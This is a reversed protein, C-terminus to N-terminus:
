FSNDSASSLMLQLCSALWRQLTVRLNLSSPTRSARSLLVIVALLSGNLPFMWTLHMSIDTPSWNSNIVHHIVFVYISYLLWAKWSVVCIIICERFPALPEDRRIVLLDDQAITAVQLDRKIDRINTLKKSLRTGQLLNAHTRRLHPFESQITLWAPRSTFPLNTSGSVIDEISVHYVTSDSTQHVFSCVQCTPDECEPANRSAFDSPINVSGALHRISAHYHSVVSLFTTVRPSASLEGRCLKESAQM